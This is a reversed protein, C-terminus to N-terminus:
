MQKGRSRRQRRPMLPPASFVVYPEEPADVVDSGDPYPVGSTFRWLAFLAFALVVASAEFTSVAFLHALLSGLALVGAAAVGILIVVVIPFLLAGLIVM